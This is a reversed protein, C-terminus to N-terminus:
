FTGRTIDGTVQFEGTFTAADDVPTSVEYSTLIATGSYKVQGSANGAPGYEFDRIVGLIGELWGDVTPDFPGEIPITADKLGGIYQKSSVGMTSVEGVDASRPLGASTLYASLDRLTAGSDDVGFYADSGHSFAM